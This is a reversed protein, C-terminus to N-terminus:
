WIVKNVTAWNRTTCPIGLKKELKIIVDLPKKELKKNIMTYVERKGLYLTEANSQLESIVKEAQSTPTSLFTIYIQREKDPIVGPFPSQQVVTELASVSRIITPVEFGYAAQLLKEIKHALTTDNSNASSFMVNGSQIYTTVEKFGATELQQRLDEMKITRKGVNVARLFAVYKTM